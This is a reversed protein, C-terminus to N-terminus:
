VLLRATYERPLHKAWSSNITKPSSILQSERSSDFWMACKNRNLTQNVSFFRQVVIARDIPEPMVKRVAKWIAEKHGGM